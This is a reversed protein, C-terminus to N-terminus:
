KPFDSLVREYIRIAATRASETSLHWDGYPAYCYPPNGDPSCLDKSDEWGKYAEILTVDERGGIDKAWAARYPDWNSEDWGRARMWGLELGDIAPPMIAYVKHCCDQMLDLAKNIKPLTVYDSSRAM